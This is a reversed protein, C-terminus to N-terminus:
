KDTKKFLKFLRRGSWVLAMSHWSTEAKELTEELLKQLGLDLTTQYNRPHSEFFFKIAGLKRLDDGLNELGELDKPFAATDFDLSDLKKIKELTNMSAGALGYILFSKNKEYFHARLEVKDPAFPLKQLNTIREWNIQSLRIFGKKGKKRIELRGGALEAEGKQIQFFMHVPVGLDVSMKQCQINKMYFRYVPWITDDEVYLSGNRIGINKIQFNGIKPLLQKKKYSDQRNFYHLLPKDLYLRHIRLRGFCLFFPNVWFRLRRAEIYFRDREVTGRYLFRFDRASFYLPPFLFPSARFHLASKEGFFISLLKRLFFAGFFFKFAILLSLCLLAGIEIPGFDISFLINELM